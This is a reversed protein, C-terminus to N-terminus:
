TKEATNAFEGHHKKAAKDYAAAALENTDFQGLYNKKGGYRINAVWKGSAKHFSVGKFGSTNKKGVGRNFQNQAPTAFRLNSRRNDLKNGDIHDIMMGERKGFIVRHMTLYRAARDFCTAYGDKSLVWSFGSVLSYDAGDIRTFETGLDIWMEGDDGPIVSNPVFEPVPKPTLTERADAIIAAIANDNAAEYASVLEVLHTKLNTIRTM